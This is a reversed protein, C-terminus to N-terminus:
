SELAALIVEIQYKLKFNHDVYQSKHLIWIQIWDSKLKLQLFKSKIMEKIQNFKVMDELDKWNEKLSPVKRSVNEKRGHSVIVCFVYFSFLILCFLL